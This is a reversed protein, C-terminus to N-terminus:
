TRPRTRYCSATRSNFMGGRCSRDLVCVRGNLLSESMIDGDHVWYRVLM